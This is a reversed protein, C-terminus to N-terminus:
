PLLRYTRVRPYINLEKFTEAYKVGSQFGYIRARMEIYELPDPGFLEKLFSIQSKHMSLAKKKIEFTSTIDVYHTPLSNFGTIYPEFYFLSPTIETPSYTTKMGLNCHTAWISADIILQRTIYHDNHWDKEEPSHTIIVDPKTRRILEIFATLSERDHFVEGDGFNLMILEGGIVEAAKKAEEARIRVIKDASLHKTGANGRCTVSICVRHGEQAYKALTGACTIEIDDPHAGAALITMKRRMM